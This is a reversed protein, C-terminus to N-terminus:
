IEINRGGEDVARYRHKKNNMSQLPLDLISLVSLLETQNGLVYMFNQSIFPSQIGKQVLHHVYEVWFENLEIYNVGTVRGKNEYYNREVYERTQEIGQFGGIYRDRQEMYKMDEYEDEGWIDDEDEDYEEEEVEKKKEKKEKKKKKKEREERRRRPKEYRKIEIGCDSDNSNNEDRYLELNDASLYEM